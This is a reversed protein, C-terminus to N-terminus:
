EHISNMNNNCIVLVICVCQRISSISEETNRQYIAALVETASEVDAATLCSFLEM